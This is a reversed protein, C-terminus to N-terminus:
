LKREKQIKSSSKVFNYTPKDLNKGKKHNQKVNSKHIASKNHNIKNIIQIKDKKRIIKLNSCSSTTIRNVKIKEEIFLNSSIKQYIMKKPSIEQFKSIKIPNTTKLYSLEDRTSISNKLNGTSSQLNSIVSYISKGIKLPINSNYSNTLENDKYFSRFKNSSKNNTGQKKANVLLAFYDSKDQINKFIQDEFNLTDNLFVSCKNTKNLTQIQQCKKKELKKLLLKIESTHFIENGKVQKTNEEIEDDLYNKTEERCIVSHKIKEIPEKESVNEKAELEKKINLNHYHFFTIPKEKTLNM